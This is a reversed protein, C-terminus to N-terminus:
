AEEVKEREEKNKEHLEECEEETGGPPDSSVRQERNYQSLMCTPSAHNSGTLDSLRVANEGEFKVDSSWAAFYNKGQICGTTLGMGLSKTAAEDGKSQKYCSKNKM